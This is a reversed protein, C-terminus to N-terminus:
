DLRATLKYKKAHLTLDIDDKTDEPGNQTELHTENAEDSNTTIEEGRNSKYRKDRLLSEVLVIKDRNRSSMEATM